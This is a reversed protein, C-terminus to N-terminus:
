IWIILSFFNKKIKEKMFSYISKTGLISGGMGFIIINKHHSHKRLIKNSFEFKYEKTFSRLFPMAGNEYDKKFSNFFFKTKKINQQYNKSKIFFNNFFNNKKNM